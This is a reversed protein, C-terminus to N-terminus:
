MIPVEMEITRMCNRGSVHIGEIGPRWTSLAPFLILHRSTNLFHNFFPLSVVVPMLKMSCLIWSGTSSDVGNNLLTALDGSHEDCEIM